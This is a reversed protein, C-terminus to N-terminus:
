NIKQKRHTHVKEIANRIVDMTKNINAGDINGISIRFWGKNSSSGFYEFPVIGLGCDNILYEIFSDTSDFDNVYGLYVSMYIGGQPQKSDVDYGQIKAAWFVDHIRYMITHYEKNKNAVFETMDGYETLYRAVANQEPKPAWAGIHTLVEMMKQTIDAPAFMWGVRVGTACLSKSIGDVCILYDRIEPCLLTPHIFLGEPTLDSYIQDFFLYCLKKNSAIRKKNEKVIVECIGKLVGKDIVRGTPNQPSCLCILRADKVYHEVDEVTPFFSNDASCEIPRKRAHQLFTYHNNNWSPVPYVVTDHADVISKFILYILPRVGASVLIESENYDVGQRKKLYESIAVRLNLEGSSAPYNSLTGDQYAEVIYDKLVEPIPNVKPDFDGMTLNEVPRTKSIEKIRQSIKIIESGIINNGVISLKQM